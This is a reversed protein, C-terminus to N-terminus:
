LWALEVLNFWGAWLWLMKRQWTKRRWKLNRIKQCKLCKALVSFMSLFDDHGSVINASHVLCQCFVVFFSVSQVLSYINGHANFSMESAFAINQDVKQGIAYWFKRHIDDLKFFFIVVNRQFRTAEMDFFWYNQGFKPCQGRKTQVDLGFCNCFEFVLFFNLFSQSHIIACHYLCGFFIRMLCSHNQWCSSTRWTLSISNWLNTKVFFLLMKKEKSDVGM